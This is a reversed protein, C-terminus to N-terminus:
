SNRRTITIIRGRGSGTERDFNVSMGSRGLIPVARRLAVSMARPSKPWETHRRESESARANVAALLDTATGSWGGIAVLHRAVASADIAVYNAHERNEEYANIFTGPDWGATAEAAHVWEVFDAM